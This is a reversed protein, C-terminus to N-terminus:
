AAQHKRKAAKLGCALAVGGMGLLLSLAPSPEPAAAPTVTFETLLGNQDTQVPSGSTGASNFVRGTLDSAGSVFFDTQQDSTASNVVVDLLLNPQGAVGPVYVFPTMFPINLDFVNNAQLDATVTGSFVTVFNSGINNAYTTSPATVSASTNSFGIVLNYTATEPVSQGIGSPDSASAFSVQTITVPSTFASASYIQQYEGSYLTTNGPMGDTGFPLDTTSDTGGITIQSGGGGTQASAAQPCILSGVLLVPLVVGIKSKMDM